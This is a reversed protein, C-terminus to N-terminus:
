DISIQKLGFAKGNHAENTSTTYSTSNIQKDLWSKVPDDKLNLRLVGSFFGGTFSVPHKTLQKFIPSLEDLFM